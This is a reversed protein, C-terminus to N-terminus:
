DAYVADYSLDIQRGSVAVAVFEEIAAVLGASIAMPARIKSCPMQHYTKSVTPRSLEALIRRKAQQAEAPSRWCHSAFLDNAFTASLSVSSDNSRKRWTSNQDTISEHISSGRAEEDRRRLARRRSEVDAFLSMNEWHRSSDHSLGLGSAEPQVNISQRLGARNPLIEGSGQAEDSDENGVITLSRDMLSLGEIPLPAVKNVSFASGENSVGPPM